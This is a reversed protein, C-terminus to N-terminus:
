LVFDAFESLTADFNAVGVLDRQTSYSAELNDQADGLAFELVSEVTEFRAGNSQAFDQAFEFRDQAAEFASDVYWDLDGWSQTAAWQRYLEEFETM